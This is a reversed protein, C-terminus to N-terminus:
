HFMNLEIVKRRTDHNRRLHTPKGDNRDTNVRSMVTCHTEPRSFSVLSCYEFESYSAPFIAVQEQRSGGSGKRNSENQSRKYLELHFRNSVRTAPSIVTAPLWNSSRINVLLFFITRIMRHVVISMLLCLSVYFQFHM